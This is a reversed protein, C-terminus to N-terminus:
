EKPTFAEVNRMRLLARQRGMTTVMVSVAPGSESGTLVYRLLTFYGKQKVGAVAGHEKLVRKLADQISPVSASPAAPTATAGTSAATASATAFASGAPAPPVFSEDPLSALADATQAILRTNIESAKADGAPWVKEKLPRVGESGYDPAQFYFGSHKPAAFDHVHTVHAALSAVIRRLFASDSLDSELQTTAAAAADGLAAVRERQTQVILPLALQMLRDLNNQALLVIHQQNFWDLKDLNVVAGAKQIRELSFAEVLEERTAFVERTTGPNWGLLAVFNLVAEPLYGRQVYYELSSDAHRKSLKSGDPKLLLPLHAFHPVQWGFAKYLLVHKPTSTLWEEGRIVHSIRMLHDDVVCALHYTPFGDSKLLVQDDLIKNPFVVQGRILDRVATSGHPIKMRVVYPLGKARHEALKAAREADEMGLCLRDYMSPLGRKTQLERLENLREPTCFCPYAAGSELLKEVHQQYIPLRESQVYPGCDGQAAGPGEDNEVGAWRLTRLLEEVAGPVLRKQDTDEIRLLFQGASADGGASQVAKKAVLYNYLATRLGGLHVSGTPSPAYRV